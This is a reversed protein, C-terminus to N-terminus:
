LSRVAKPFDERPIRSHSRVRFRYNYVTQPSYHLFAAIQTSDNIGLRVLAYIRLEPSLLEGPRPRLEYGDELLGNIKDIFDPFIDLFLSDFKNFFSQLHETGLPSALLADIDKVKGAKLRQSLQLRYRDISGIYDSCLNFLYGLYQEKIKASEELSQNALSLRNRLQELEVNKEHLTQREHSLRTNKRYIYILAAILAASLASVLLLMATKNQSSKQQAETYASTVIPLYGSIRQIRSRANSQHIDNIACMIYTYAHRDDGEASLIRALEQLAEYKRVSQRLDYEAAVAYNLKAEEIRGLDELCRARLYALIGPDTTGPVFREISDIDALGAAPEGNSRHKEASNLWYSSSRPTSEAILTDRYSELIARNAAAEEPSSAYDALSYYISGYRNLIRPRFTKRWRPPIRGLVELAGSYDGMGKLGEAEMITASWMLSDAGADRAERVCRRALMLMTDMSYSRYENFLAELADFRQLPSAAHAVRNQLTDIRARKQRAIAPREAIVYDLRAIAEEYSVPSADGTTASGSTRGCSLLGILIALPILHIAIKAM